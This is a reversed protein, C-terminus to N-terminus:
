AGGQYLGRKNIYVITEHPIFYDLPLGRRARERLETSSVALRHGECRHIRLGPTKPQAKAPYGPREVLIFEAMKALEAIEHWRDLMPLQDCGIIWYLQDQPHLQRFHRVSDVTYSMGGKRLEYDSIEFRPDREVAAKLMALRDDGGSQAREPKLPAQSAPMFILRDLRHLEFADQAALLHGFHVPDFSGGLFGIKV